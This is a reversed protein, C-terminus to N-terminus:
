YRWLFEALMDLILKDFAANLFFFLASKVLFNLNFKLFFSVFHLYQSYSQTTSFSSYKLFYTVFVKFAICHPAPSPHTRDTKGVAHYILFYMCLWLSRFLFMRCANCSLSVTNTVCQTLLTKRFMNLFNPPFLLRRILRVCSSSVVSPFFLYKYNLSFAKYRM